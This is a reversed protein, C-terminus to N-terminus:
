PKYLIRYAKAGTGQDLAEYFKLVKPSASTNAMRSLGTWATGM